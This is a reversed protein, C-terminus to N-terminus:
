AIEILLLFVNSISSPVLAMQRSNCALKIARKAAKGGIYMFYIIKLNGIIENTRITSWALAIKERYGNKLLPM